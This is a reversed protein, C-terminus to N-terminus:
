RVSGITQSVAPEDSGTALLAGAILATLAAVVALKIKWKTSM